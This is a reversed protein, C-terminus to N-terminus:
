CDLQLSRRVDCITRQGYAEDALLAELYDRDYGRELLFEAIGRTREPRRLLTNAVLQWELPVVPVHTGEFHLTRVKDSWRSFHKRADISGDDCAIVLDGMVEVKVDEVEFVGFYSTYPGASSLGVPRLTAGVASLSGEMIYAGDRTTVLDIDPPSYDSIGQLVSALSGMLAWPEQSKFMAPVLPRLAVSAAHRVADTLGSGPIADEHIKLV